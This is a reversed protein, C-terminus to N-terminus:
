PLLEVWEIGREYNFSSFVLDTPDNKKVMKFRLQIETNGKGYPAVMATAEDFFIRFIVTQGSIQAMWDGATYINHDPGSSIWEPTLHSASLSLGQFNGIKDVVPKLSSSFKTTNISMRIPPKKAGTEQAPQVDFAAVRVCLGFVFLLFIKV